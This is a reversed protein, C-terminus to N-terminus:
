IHILSLEHEGLEDQGGIQEPGALDIGCGLQPMQRLLDLLDEASPRDREAFGEFTEGSNTFRSSRHGFEEIEVASWDEYGM